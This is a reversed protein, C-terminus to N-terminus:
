DWWGRINHEILKWVLKHAREQKVKSELFLSSKEESIILLESDTYDNEYREVMEYYPEGKKDLEGTKVFDFSTKGYRSEVIDMYEMAYEEDYVKKLLNVVTRIRKADSLATTHRNKEEIYNATRELQYSFLEVAYRYDWDASRWIHPIFQIVRKIKEIKRNIYHM